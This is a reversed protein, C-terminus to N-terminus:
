SIPQKTHESDQGATHNSTLSSSHHTLQHETAAPPRIVQRGFYMMDPFSGAGAGGNSQLDIIAKESGRAKAEELFQQVMAQFKRADSDTETNFTQLSLVALNKIIPHDVFYGNIHVNSPGTLDPEPYDLIAEANGDDFVERVHQLRKPIHSLAKM